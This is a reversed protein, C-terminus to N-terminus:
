HRETRLQLNAITHDSNRCAHGHFHKTELGFHYLTCTATVSFNMIDLISLTTYSCNSNQLLISFNSIAYIGCVFIMMIEKLVM